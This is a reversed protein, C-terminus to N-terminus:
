GVYRDHASLRLLCCLLRGEEECPPPSFDVRPKRQSFEQNQGHITGFCGTMFDIFIRLFVTQVSTNARRKRHLRFPSQIALPSTSMFIKEGGQAKKRDPCGKGFLVCSLPLRPPSFCGPRSLSECIHLYARIPILKQGFVVANFSALPFSPLRESVTTAQEPIACLGSGSGRGAGRTDVRFM